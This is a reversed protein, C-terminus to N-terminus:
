NGSLTSQNHKEEYGLRGPVIQTNMNIGSISSQSAGHKKTM